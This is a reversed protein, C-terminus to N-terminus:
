IKNSLSRCIETMKVLSENFRELPNKKEGVQRFKEDCNQMDQAAMSM